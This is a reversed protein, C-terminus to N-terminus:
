RLEDFRQGKIRVDGQRSTIKRRDTEELIPLAYKRSTALESRLWAVTLEEGSNLCSAIKELARNWADSNLVLETSVKIAKGTDLLYGLAERSAKGSSVLIPILPPGFPNEELLKEIREAQKKTEGAVSQTRGPLHYRGANSLLLGQELAIELLLSQSSILRREPVKLLRFIEDPTLGRLHPEAKLREGLRTVLTQLLAAMNEVLYVQGNLDAVVGAKIMEALKDQIQRHSFRSRLLLEDRNQPSYVALRHHILDTLSLALGATLETQDPYSFTALEALSQRSPMSDSWDLIVGGGVTRQPTPLRLVFTDGVFCLPETECRLVVIQSSGPAIEGDDLLRAECAIESSGLFLSLKRRTNIKVPCDPLVSIRALLFRGGGASDALAPVSVVSGRHLHERDIGTFALAARQGSKVCPVQQGHRQAVRIKGRVQSPYVVVEDGESFSGGRVTGTVVGGMGARIFSRDIFLRPKGIDGSQDHTTALITLAAELKDFGAGTTSSVPIIPADSLFSGQLRQRIDDCVVEVWDPEVLDIKSVVVIGSQVQLLRLIDFHEQSQPMWGDDAAVVLMVAEIGGAGAIMNRVFREHGPVDVFSVLAQTAQNSSSSEAPSWHAFGLDITMGREREEPLSDPDTGTLRRVVSSKGHDIHGALGITLGDTTNTPSSNAM